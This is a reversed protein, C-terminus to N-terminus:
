ATTIYSFNIKLDVQATTNFYIFNNNAYMFLEQASNNYGGCTAWVDSAAPCGVVDALSLNTGTLTPHIIGSVVVLKGIKYGVLSGTAGLGNVNVTVAQPTVASNLGTIASNLGTIAALVKDIWAKLDLKM